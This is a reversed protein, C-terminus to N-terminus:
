NRLVSGTLAEPDNRRLFGLETTRRRPPLAGRLPSESCPAPPLWLLERHVRGERWQAGRVLGLMRARFEAPYPPCHSWNVQKGPPATALSLLGPAVDDRAGAAKLAVLRRAHTAGTSTLRESM